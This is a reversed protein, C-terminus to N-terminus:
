AVVIANNALLPSLGPGEPERDEGDAGPYIALGTQKAMAM